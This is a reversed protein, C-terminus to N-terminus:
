FNEPFVITVLDNRVSERFHALLEEETQTPYVYSLRLYEVILPDFTRIYEFYFQGLTNESLRKAFADQLKSYGDTVTADDTKESRFIDVLEIWFGKSFNLEEILITEADIFIATYDGATDAKQQSETRRQNVREMDATAKEIHTPTEPPPIIEKIPQSMGEDCGTFLIITFLSVVYLKAILRM